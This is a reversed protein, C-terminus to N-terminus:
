GGVQKLLKRADSRPPDDPTLSADLYRKLLTRAADLNRKSSIYTEAREYMLRPNNPDIKEAQQFTQDSESFRGQKALFKALDVVRGVQKPALDVARRLQAEANSYEKRKEAVKARAYSGEVADVKAMREALASAKDMGGGLFGPAELYYDLLDSMAELNRGDLEVAREFHTRAKSALGPAFLPNSTEARRGYARGLWMAHTSSTPESQFAKEFAESAKKFEGLMFYNRGILEYVQHVKPASELVKLSAEYSTQNHLKLAQEYATPDACLAAVSLLWLVPIRKFM